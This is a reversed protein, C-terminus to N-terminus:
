AMARGIHFEEPIGQKDLEKEPIEGEWAAARPIRSKSVFV